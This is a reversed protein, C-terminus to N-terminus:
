GIQDPKRLIRRLALFTGAGLVSLAALLDGAVILAPHRSRDLRAPTGLDVLELEPGDHLVRGAPMTVRGAGAASKELLVYRVGVEGLMPALPRGDALATAIKAAAASDGAVTTTSTALRDDTVIQGGFARIAPDLAARHNWSLRQYASFPLVVTRRQDAPQDDLLHAVTAWEGPMTVPEYRGALGWALSPLLVLPALALVTGALRPGLGNARAAAIVKETVLAFGLCAVLVFPLLWKQSDRLLGAGPVHEVLTRVLDAGPGTAPLLALLYGVAALAFLRRQRAMAVMAALTFALAILVLLWSDREPAVVGAKWIGGFTALSGAVGFPGDAHAAFARVGAPDASQGSALAGPVFWPLNVLVSPVITMAWTIRRRPDIGVVTALVAAVIGGTPSGIAAVALALTLRAGAGPRGARVDYAALLLWPMVAYGLLLGWHGIGLREDVYPNWLYLAAAAFGALRSAQPLLVAVARLMGLGAGLLIGLLILKQLLDGPILHTLVSVVADAPVARPVSGDLGLWAAKWPQRPVFTMDGVLVVGRHFLVPALVLVALALVGLAPLRRPM